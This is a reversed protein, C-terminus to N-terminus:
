HRGSYCTYEKKDPNLQRWIGVLGLESCAKRLLNANEGARHAKTSSSDLKTNMVLYLDGAMIVVGKTKTVLLDLLKEM